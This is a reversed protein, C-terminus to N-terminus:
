RRTPMKIAVYERAAAGGYPWPDLAQGPTWALAGIDTPKETRFKYGYATSSQWCGVTTVTVGYATVPMPTQHVHHFIAIDPPVDWQSLRKAMAYLGNSINWPDRPVAVGHHSWFIRKGGLEIAWNYPVSKAGLAEAVTQDDEGDAGAHAETGKVAMVVSAINALPQLLTIAADRQDKYRGWVQMSNHHHGDVLDGGLMLCLARGKAAAKARDIFSQWLKLLREMEANRCEAKPAVATTGGVHLDGVWLVLPPPDAKPKTM